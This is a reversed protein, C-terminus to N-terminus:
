SHSNRALQLPRGIRKYSNLHIKLVQVQEKVQNDYFKVNPNKHKHANKAELNYYALRQLDLEVLACDRKVSRSEKIVKKDRREIGYGTKYKFM